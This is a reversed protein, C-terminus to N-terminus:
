LSSVKKHERYIRYIWWTAFSLALFMIVYDAQKFYVNLATWNEGLKFGVYTLFWSWGFSGIFTLLTFNLVPVKFMGAPYSIFTRVIPLFRVIFVSLNGYKEFFREAMKMHSQHVLYLRSLFHLPRLGYYKALYYSVLSGATNGLAGVLIVSWFSFTNQSVLFGSFPMIIESPIPVNASELAM